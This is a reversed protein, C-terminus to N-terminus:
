ERPASPQYYFSRYIGEVMYETKTVTLYLHLLSGGRLVLRM